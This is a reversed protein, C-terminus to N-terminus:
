CCSCIVDINSLLESELKSFDQLFPVLKNTQLHVTFTHSPISTTPDWETNTPIPSHPLRLGQVQHGSSQPLAPHPAYDLPLYPSSSLPTEFTNRAYFNVGRQVENGFIMLLLHSCMSWSVPLTTYIKQCITSNSLFFLM